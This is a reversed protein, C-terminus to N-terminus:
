CCCPEEVHCHSYIRVVKVCKPVYMSSVYTYLYMRVYMFASSTHSCVLRNGGIPVYTCTCVYTEYQIICFRNCGWIRILLYTCTCVYTHLYSHIYTLRYRSNRCSKKGNPLRQGKSMLIMVNRLYNRFILLVDVISVKHSTYLIYTRVYTYVYLCVKEIQCVCAWQLEKRLNTIQGEM